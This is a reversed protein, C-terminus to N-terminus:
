SPELLCYSKRTKVSSIGDEETSLNMTMDGRAVMPMDRGGIRGTTRSGIPERGIARNGIGRRLFRAVQRLTSSGISPSIMIDLAIDRQSILWM